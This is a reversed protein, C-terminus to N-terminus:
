SANDIHESPTFGFSKKFAVSFHAPSKFGVAYAVEAISGPRAKLINAARDLRLQRMLEAPTKQTLAKVKRELQRRSMNMESALWDTNFNSDGLRQNMAELVNTMFENEESPIVTDTSEVRLLGSYHDRLQQRSLILNTVRVELERLSFPKTLYDDAGGKLGAIRDEEEAKATLLIVPIHQLAPDEKIMRCLVNGDIKPMMVDSIVLDPRSERILSLGVDGDSAELVQLQTSLHNTLLSRIDPNDDVIVVTGKHSIKPQKEDSLPREGNSALLAMKELEIASSWSGDETPLKRTHRSSPSSQASVPLHITFTTGFGRESSVGIRGGHLEILEKVLALGIGTGEKSRTSTNDVQYFRDFIHPLLEGPVGIGTDSVTLIFSNEHDGDSTENMVLGVRIKGGRMTFKFANSLLNTVIKEVKDKDLNVQLHPLPTDFLLTIGDREALPSFSLTLEKLFEALDFLQLHLRMSGAEIRALDLLQNVLRLLRGANRHMVPVQRRLWEVPKQENEIEELPSMILTLPTRFEHSINAFFRTRVRDIEELHQNKEESLEARLQAERIAAHKKEEQRIRRRQWRDIAAVGVLLILGYGVYAWMTRWWPPAIVVRVSTPADNNWIGSSNAARVQFVYDGPDLRPFTISHQTGLMVWEDQLGRMRYAYQNRIPDGYDLSVFDFTISNQEHTLQLSTVGERSRTEEIDESEHLSRGFLKIDTVQVTPPVAHENIQLPDVVILGEAGGFLFHGSSNVSSANWWFDKSKVKYEAGFNRVEGSEPLYRILGKGRTTIWLYGEEDELIATISAEPVGVELTAVYSESIAELRLLGADTGLWFVNPVKKGQVLTNVSIIGRSSNYGDSPYVHVFEDSESRKYKLGGHTGVWLKGEDDEYLAQISSTPQWSSGYFYRVFTSDERNLRNLGYATGVWLTGKQDTHMSQVMNHSLSGSDDQDYQYYTFAEQEPDFRVLGNNHSGIWLYGDLDLDLSFVVTGFAPSREEHSVSIDYYHEDYWHRVEGTKPDLRTLAPHMINDGTTIWMNGDPDEVIGTVSSSQLGSEYDYLTFPQVTPDFRSVGVGTGIWILGSRDLYIANPRGLITSRTQAYTNFQQFQGSSTDLRFLGAEPNVVWLVHEDTPDFVAAQPMSWWTGDNGYEEIPFTLLSEYAGTEPTYRSVGRAEVLLLADEYVPDELVQLIHDPGGGWQASRDSIHRVLTNSEHDLHYLGTISSVWLTGAKDEMVSNVVWFKGLIDEPETPAFRDFHGTVPDVRYLGNNFTAVWLVGASDEYIDSITYYLKPAFRVVSDGRDDYQALGSGTAIWLTGEKTQFLNHVINHPLSTSDGPSNQYSTFSIGDYKFLGGGTGFWMYGKQDQYLSLVTGDLLGDEETIHRFYPSVSQASSTLAIGPAVIVWLLLCKLHHVMGRLSRSAVSQKARQPPMGIPM